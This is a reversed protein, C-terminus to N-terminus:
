SSGGRDPAAIPEASRRGTSGADRYARAVNAALAAVFLIGVLGNSLWRNLKGRSAFGELEAAVRRAQEDDARRAATAAEDAPTQFVETPAVDPRSWRAHGTYAPFPWGPGRSEVTCHDPGASVLSVADPQLNWWGFGAIAVVLAAISLATARDAM